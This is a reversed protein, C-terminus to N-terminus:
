FVLITRKSSACQIAVDVPVYGVAVKRPCGGGGRKCRTKKVEATSTEEVSAFVENAVTPHV